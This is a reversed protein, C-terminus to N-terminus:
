YVTAVYDRRARAVQKSSVGTVVELEPIRIDPSFFMVESGRRSKYATHDLWYRIATHGQYLELIRPVADYSVVWTHCVDGIAQAIALHDSDEYFNDYLDAGKAYYPPDLYLVHRDRESDVRRILDLADLCTVSIRNRHRAIKQIRTCLEARNYRASMKWAGTQELGGILGGNGIIGSRNTRNLYFTSFALELPDAHAGQRQISRQRLWEDVTLSTDTIRRCLEDTANLVANWFEYISRNIDNIHAHSIYDEFLLSLAVSAGGAYPEVYESDCLDNELLTLKLFNAVRAKGGPYRLPSAYRGAAVSM